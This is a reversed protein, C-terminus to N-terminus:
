VAWTRKEALHRPLQLAVKTLGGQGELVASLARAPHEGHLVDGLKDWYEQPARRRLPDLGHQLDHELTLRAADEAMSIAEDLTEGVTLVDLELVRAIWRRSERDREFTCWLPPLLVGLGVKPITITTAFPPTPSDDDTPFGM